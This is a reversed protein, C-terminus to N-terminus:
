ESNPNWKESEKKKRLKNLERESLNEALTRLIFGRLRMFTTGYEQREEETAPVWTCGGILGRSGKAAFALATTDEPINQLAETVSLLYRRGLVVFVLDYGEALVRELDQSIGKERGIAQLTEDGTLEDVEYGMSEARDRIGAFDGSFGCDYSPIETDEKLLGFGASIIRWDVDALNRLEGVAQKVHRHEDGTYMESAPAVSDPYEQVLEERSGEDITECDITSDYM